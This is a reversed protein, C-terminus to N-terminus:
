KKKNAERAVSGIGKLFAISVWMNAHHPLLLDNFDVASEELHLLLFEGLLRRSEDSVVHDEDVIAGAAVSEDPM